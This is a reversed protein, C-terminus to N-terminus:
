ASKRFTKPHMLCLKWVIKIGNRLPLLGIISWSWATACQASTRLIRLHISFWLVVVSACRSWRRHCSQRRPWTSNACAHSRQLAAQLCSETAFEAAKTFFTSRVFKRVLQLNGSFHSFVVSSHSSSRFFRRASITCFDLAMTSSIHVRHLGANWGSSTQLVPIVM